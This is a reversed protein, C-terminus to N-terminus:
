VIEKKIQHDIGIFNHFIETVKLNQCIECSQGWQGLQANCPVTKLPDLSIDFKGDLNELSMRKQLQQVSQKVQEQDLIGDQRLQELVVYGSMMMLQGHLQSITTLQEPTITSLINQEHDILMRSIAIPLMWTKGDEHTTISHHLNEKKKENSVDSIINCSTCAARLRSPKIQSVQGPTPFSNMMSEACIRIRLNPDKPNANPTAVKRKKRHTPHITIAVPKEPIRGQVEEEEKKETEEETEEEDEEEEAEEDEQQERKLQKISSRSCHQVFAALGNHKEGIGFM